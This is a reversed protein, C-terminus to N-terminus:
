IYSYKETIFDEIIEKLSIPAVLNDCLLDFLEKAFQYKSTIDTFKEKECEGFLTCEIEVGYCTVITDEVIIETELLKYILKRNALVQSEIVKEPSCSTVSINKEQVTQSNELKKASLM